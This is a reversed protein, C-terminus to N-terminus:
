GAQGYARVLERCTTFHFRSDALISRIRREVREGKISWFMKQVLSTNLPFNEETIDVPHFYFLTDGRRLSEKLGRRIYHEGFLRLVPGGGTPFKAVLHFYPWPIEIIRRKMIGRDLTGPAPWYLQTNVDTLRSDSKNYVSNVSVSSDYQFGMKELCDIMWGAIYANPARYGTVKQGSIKELIRKAELTRDIFEKESMLPQKTRPDIKCAHHLGHCAIEHRDAAIKEVMGAYHEVVDAVIFFTAQIDLERLLKLVRVTPQSLYDYRQHWNAFFVPVDRYRSELAGTIPPLHYWDEIDITVAVAPHKVDAERM